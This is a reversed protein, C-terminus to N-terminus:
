GASFGFSDLTAHLEEVIPAAIPEALVMGDPDRSMYGADM